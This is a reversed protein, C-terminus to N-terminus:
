NVIPLILFKRGGVLLDIRFNWSAVYRNCNNTKCTKQIKFFFNCVELLHKKSSMQLLLTDM